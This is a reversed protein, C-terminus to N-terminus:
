QAPIQELIFTSEKNALTLGDDTITVEAGTELLPGFADEIEMLNNNICGKQTGIMQETRLINNSLDYGGSFNNCIEVHAKGKLFSITSKRDPKTGNHERIQFHKGELDTGSLTINSKQNPKQVYVFLLLSSILLLIVTTLIAVKNKM